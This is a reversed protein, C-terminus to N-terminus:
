FSKLYYVSWFLKQQQLKTKDDPISLFDHKKCLLNTSLQFICLVQRFFSTRDASHTSDILQIFSFHEKQPYM